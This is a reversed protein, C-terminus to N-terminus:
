ANVGFRIASCSREVFGAIRQFARHMVIVCGDGDSAAADELADHLRYGHAHALIAVLTGRLEADLDNRNLAEATMEAIAGVYYDAQVDHGVRQERDGRYRLAAASGGYAVDELWHLARGAPSAEEIEQRSQPGRHGYGNEPDPPRPVIRPSPLPLSMPTGKTARGTQRQDPRKIHHAGAWGQLHQASARHM